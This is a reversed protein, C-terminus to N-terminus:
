LDWDLKGVKVVVTDRIRSLRCGFPLSILSVPQPKIVGILILLSHVTIEFDM